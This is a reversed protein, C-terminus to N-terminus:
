ELVAIDALHFHIMAVAFVGDDLLVVGTLPLDDSRFGDGGIM